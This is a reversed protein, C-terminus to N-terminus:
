SIKKGAEKEEKLKMAKLEKEEKLKMAKLERELKLKEKKREKERHERLQKSNKYLYENEFFIPVCFWLRYYDLFNKFIFIMIPLLVGFRDPYLTVTLFRNKKFYHISDIFSMDITFTVQYYEEYYENLWFLFIIYIILCSLMLSVILFTYRLFKYVHLRKAKLAWFDCRQKAQQEFYKQLKNTQRKLPISFCFWVLFQLIFAIDNQLFYVPLNLSIM